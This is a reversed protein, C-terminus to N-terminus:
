KIRIQGDYFLIQEKSNNTENNCNRSLKMMNREENTLYAEDM